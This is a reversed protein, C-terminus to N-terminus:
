ELGPLGRYRGQAVFRIAQPSILVLVPQFRCGMLELFVKEESLRM